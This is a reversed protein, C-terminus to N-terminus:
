VLTKHDAALVIIVAEGRLVFTEGGSGLDLLYGVGLESLSYIIVSITGRMRRRIRPIKTCIGKRSWRITILINRVTPM